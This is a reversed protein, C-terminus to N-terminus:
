ENDFRGPEAAIKRWVWYDAYALTLTVAYSLGVVALKSYVSLEGVVMSIILFVFGSVFLFVTPIRHAKAVSESRGTHKIGRHGNFRYVFAASMAFIALAGFWLNFSAGISRGVVWLGVLLMLMSFGDFIGFPWPAITVWRTSIWWMVSALMIFQLAQAVILFHLLEFSSWDIDGMRSLLGEIALAIVISVLTVYLAPFQKRLAREAPQEERM